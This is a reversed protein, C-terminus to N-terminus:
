ALVTQTGIQVSNVLCNAVALALLIYQAVAMVAAHYRNRITFKPLFANAADMKLSEGPSNFEFPRMAYASPAGLTILVGLVPRRASILAIEGVTPGVYAVITPMLGLMISGSAMDSKNVKDIDDFLCSVMNKCNGSSRQAHVQEVGRDYEPWRGTTYNSWCQESADTLANFYFGYWQSFQEAHSLSITTCLIM